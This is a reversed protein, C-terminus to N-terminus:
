GQENNKNLSQEIVKNTEDYRKNRDDIIDTMDMNRVVREMITPDDVIGSDHRNASVILSTSIDEGIWAQYTSTQMTDQRMNYSVLNDPNDTSSLRAKKYHNEPNRYREAIFIEEEESPVRLKIKNYKECDSLVQVMADPPFFALKGSELLSLLIMMNNSTQVSNIDTVFADGKYYTLVICKRIPGNKTFQIERIDISSPSSDIRMPMGLPYCKVSIPNELEKETHFPRMMGVAFYRVNSGILSYYEYGRYAKGMYDFPLYVELAFTNVYISNDVQRFM